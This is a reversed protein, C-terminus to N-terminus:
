PVYEDGDLDDFDENEADGQFHIAMEEEEIRADEDDEDMIDEDTMNPKRGRKIDLLAQNEMMTSEEEYTSKNYQVLGKQLGKSWRELKNNKLINQIDRENDNMEKFAYTIDDKEKEKSRLVKEMLTEYNEDIVSKDNCIMSSFNFILSAINEKLKNKKGSLIDENEEEEDEDEEDGERDAEDRNVKKENLIDTEEISMFLTLVYYFYFKLLFKSLQIDSADINGLKSQQLTYTNLETNNCFTELDSTLAVIKKLISKIQSSGYFKNLIDYHKNVMEKIDQEHRKALKWHKPITINNTSVENIIMNPIEKTLRRITNKIFNTLRDYTNITSNNQEDKAYHKDGSLKKFILIDEICKEFDTLEKKKLGRSNEKVFRIINIKMLDNQTVLFNKFERLDASSSSSSSEYVGNANFNREILKSFHRKFQKFISREDEKANEPILLGKLVDIRNKQLENYESHHIKIEVKNKNNIIRLLQQLYENTYNNGNNKLTKIQMEISDNANFNAPKEICLTKLDSQVPKLSNYKCFYIVARYITEETFNVPPKVLKRLTKNSPDFLIGAKTMTKVDYLLEDLKKINENLLGIENNENIFYKLPNMEGTENCCANEIYSEGNGNKLITMKKEVIRQILEQIGISHYIIKSKLISIMEEQEKKGTKMSQLFKEKFGSTVDTILQSSLRTSHLLPLFSVWKKINHELPIIPEEEKESQTLLYDEKEKRVVQVDDTKIIHENLFTEMKKIIDKEKMSAISNWLKLSKKELKGVICAIYTIATRDDGGQLSMPYGTFSKKCGPFTKTSKISPISTQIAILFYCLTFIILSKNYATEYDEPKKKGSKVIDDVLKKYDKESPMVNEIQKLVNRIIFELKGELKINMFKSLTSVVTFIKEAQPNDFKGKREGEKETKKINALFTGSAAGSTGTRAGSVELVDRTIIKFGEETYEEDTNFDIMKIVYGSEMDVWADGDDSLKGQEKCITNITEKYNTKTIFADAIRLLFIPLLKVDTKICYLWFQSKDNKTPNRTFYTAFKDIYTQKKSYDGMGLILDRLKAYPSETENMEEASNGIVYNKNNYKLLAEDKLKNLIKIRLASNNLEFEIKQKMMEKNLKLKSDFEDLVKKLNKMKIENGGIELDTCKNTVNICNKDLNCLLKPKEVLFDTKINEDLVWNDNKRQYYKVTNTEELDLIALDDEEVMRKGIIMAKADRLAQKESLKHDKILKDRVINIKIGIDQNQDMKIDKLIDYFTTDYQKDFYIEKNNDDELEDEALYKKAIVDYQKCIAQQQQQEAQALVGIPPQQQEAQAKTKQIYDNMLLIHQEVLSDDIMLNLGLLSLSNNYLICNDVFNLLVMLEGYTYNNYEEPSNFGYLMMTKELINENKYFFKNLVISAKMKDNKPNEKKNPYFKRMYIYNKKYEIISQEIIKNIEKYHTIYLDKNYIFFPELFSIFNNVSLKNGKLLPKIFDILVSTTPIVKQLFNKYEDKNRIGIEDERTNMYEFHKVGSLFNNNYDYDEGGENDIMINSLQTKNNLFMSYNLYNMNLMSRQLVNTTPLNIYSFNITEKPMMMISNFSILDNKTIQKRKIIDDGGKVKSTELCTMGTIYEQNFFRKTTDLVIASLNTGVETECLRENNELAPPQYPTLVPDLQEILRRYNNGGEISVNGSKYEDIISNMLTIEDSIDDENLCFKKVIKSVPLLWYLKEKFDKLIDVLPKFKETHPTNLQANGQKDFNSYESRLQKFREILQHINNITRENRKLNPIHSILEDLLDSTQQEIGFRQEQEPVDVVVSIEDLLNGFQIQEADFVTEKLSEEEEELPQESEELPQEQEEAEPEALVSSIEESSPQLSMEAPAPRIIIKEISLEEPIGKYAFDIYWIDNEPYTTIQIMDEELDSIKGTIVMPIDSNFFIDVWVGILLNNQKAYGAEIARSLKKINLISKNNLQGTTEDIAFTYEAGKEEILIIKRSDVYKVFFIHENISTNTPADIQLIDGIQINLKNENETENENSM